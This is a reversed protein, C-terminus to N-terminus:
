TLGKRRARLALGIMLVLSVMLLVWKATTFGSARMVVDDAVSSGAQVMRAVEANELLDMLLYGGPACLILMRRLASMQSTNLWVAGALSITLLVPFVTDLWRFMGLYTDRAQPVLELAALYTRAEQPSYGFFRSDFNKLGDPELGGKSLVVLAVFCL